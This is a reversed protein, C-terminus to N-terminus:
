KRTSKAAKFERGEEVILNYLTLCWCAVRALTGGVITATDEGVPIPGVWNTTDGWVIFGLIFFTSLALYRSLEWLYYRGFCLPLFFPRWRQLLAAGVATRPTRELVTKLWDVPTGERFFCFMVVVFQVATFYDVGDVDPRHAANRQPYQPCKM